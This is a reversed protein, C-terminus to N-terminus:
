RKVPAVEYIEHELGGKASQWDALSCKTAVQWASELHVQFQMPQTSTFKEAGYVQDYM